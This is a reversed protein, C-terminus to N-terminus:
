DSKLYFRDGLQKTTEKKTTIKTEYLSIDNNRMELGQGGEDQPRACRLEVNKISQCSESKFFEILCDYDLIYYNRRIFCSRAKSIADEM